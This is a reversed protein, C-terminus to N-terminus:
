ENQKDWIKRMRENMLKEKHEEERRQVDKEEELISKSRTRGTYNSNGSFLISVGYIILAAIALYTVAVTVIFATFFFLLAVILSFIIRIILYKGYKHACNSSLYLISVISIIMLLWLIIAFLGKDFPFWYFSDIFLAKQFEIGWIFYIVGYVLGSIMAAFAVYSENALKGKGLNWIVLKKNLQTELISFLVSIIALVVAGVWFYLSKWNLYKDIANKIEAAGESLNLIEKKKIREKPISVGALYKSHVYGASGKYEIKMWPNNFGLAFLTDGKSYSGLLKSNESPSERVSINKTKVVYATISDSSTFLLDCSTLSITFLVIIIISSLKKM